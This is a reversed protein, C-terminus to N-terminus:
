NEPNFKASTELKITDGESLGCKYGASSLKTNIRLKNESDSVLLSGKGTVSYEGVAIHKGVTYIGPTLTIEGNGSLAIETNLKDAEEQKSAIEAQVEDLRASLEDYKDATEDRMSEYDIIANLEAKREAREDYLEDVKENLRDNDEALEGYVENRDQLKETIAAVKDANKPIIFGTIMGILGGAVFACVVYLVSRKKRDSLIDKIKPMIFEYFRVCQKKLFELVSKTKDSLIDLFASIKEGNLTKKPKEASETKEEDKNESYETTIPSFDDEADSKADKNKYYEYIEEEIIEKEDAM